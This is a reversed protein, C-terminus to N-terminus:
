GTHGTLRRLFQGTQGNWLTITRDDSGSALTRGDASLAVSEISLTHGALTHHVEIAEPRAALSHSSQEDAQQGGGKTVLLNQSANSSPQGSRLEVLVRKVHGIIDYFADDQHSWHTIPQANTPIMQLTALPTDQWFTTRILVPIVRASGQEHREMARKM